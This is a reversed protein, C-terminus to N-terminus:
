QAASPIFRLGAPLAIAPPPHEDAQEKSVSYWVLDCSSIHALLHNGAVGSLFHMVGDVTHFAGGPRTAPRVDSGLGWLSIVGDIDLFRVPKAQM